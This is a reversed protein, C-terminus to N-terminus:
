VLIYIPAIDACAVTGNTRWQQSKQSTAPVQSQGSGYAGGCVRCSLITSM